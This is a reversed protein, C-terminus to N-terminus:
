IVAMLNRRSWPADTSAVFLNPSVGSSLALRFPRSSIKFSRPLAHDDSQLADSLLHGALSKMDPGSFLANPRSRIKRRDLCFIRIAVLISSAFTDEGSFSM